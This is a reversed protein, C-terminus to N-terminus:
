FIDDETKKSPERVGVSTAKMYVKLLKAKRGKVSDDIAGRINLGVADNYASKRLYDSTEPESMQLKTLLIEVDIKALAASKADRFRVAHLPSSAERIALEAWNPYRAYQVNGDEDTKYKGDANKLPVYDFSRLEKNEDLFSDTVLIKNIGILKEFEIDTSSKSAEAHAVANGLDILNQDPKRKFWDLPNLSPSM